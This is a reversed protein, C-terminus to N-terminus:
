FFVNNSYSIHKTITSGVEVYQPCIRVLLTEYPELTHKALRTGVDRSWECYKARWLQTHGVSSYIAAYLLDIAHIFNSSYFQNMEMKRLNIYIGHPKVRPKKSSKM